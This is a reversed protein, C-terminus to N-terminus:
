ACPLKIANVPLGPHRQVRQVPQRTRTADGMVWDQASAAIHSSLQVGKEHAASAYLKQTDNVLRTLDFPAPNISILGSEIRAMDLIDSLLHQLNDSSSRIIEVMECQATTLESQSLVETLAIIGNLPTRIEHSMNALFRSKAVNASRAQELASALEAEHKKQETFDSVTTVLGHHAIRRNQLRVWHNKDQSQVLWDGPSRENLKHELWVSTAMIDADPPRSQMENQRAHSYTMGVRLNPGINRSLRQFHSNWIVLRDREDYLALGIPLAEVANRLLAIFQVQSQWLAAAFLVVAFLFGSTMAGLWVALPSNTAGSSPAAVLIQELGYVMFATLTACLLSVILIEQRLSRRPRIASIIIFALPAVGIYLAAAALRAPEFQMGMSLRCLSLTSLSGAAFVILIAMTYGFPNAASARAIHLRFIAAMTAMAAIQGAIALWLNLGDAFGSPSAIYSAWWLGHSALFITAIGCIRRENNTRTKTASMALMALTLILWIYGGIALISWDPPSIQLVATREM